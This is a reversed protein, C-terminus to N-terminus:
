LNVPTGYLVPLQPLGRHYLHCKNNTEEKLGYAEQPGPNPATKNKARELASFLM